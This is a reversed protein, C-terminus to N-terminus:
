EGRPHLQKAGELAGADLVFGEHQQLYAAAGCGPVRCEPKDAPCARYLCLRGVYGGTSVDMLFVDVQHHAVGIKKQKLIRQLATTRARQLERLSSTDTVYVALDIDKCEHLVTVGRQELSRSRPTERELERSVSGFLLVREVCPLKGFERAVHRAVDKFERRRRRAQHDEEEVEDDLPTRDPFRKAYLERIWENVPLKWQQTPAPINKILNQPNLGMTRAKRVDDASLRCRRKVVAWRAEPDQPLKSQKGRAM